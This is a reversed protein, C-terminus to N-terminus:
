KTDGKILGDWIEKFERRQGHSMNDDNFLCNECTIEEDGSCEGDVLKCLARARSEISDSFRPVKWETKKRGFMKKVEQKGEYTSGVLVIDGSESIDLLLFVYRTIYGLM